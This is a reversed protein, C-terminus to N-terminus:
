QAASQSWLGTKGCRLVTQTETETETAPDFGAYRVVFDLGGVNLSGGRGSIADFVQKCADRGLGSGNTSPQVFGRPLVGVPAVQM